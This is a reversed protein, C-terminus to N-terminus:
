QKGEVYKWNTVSYHRCTGDDQLIVVDGIDHPWYRKSIMGGFPNPTAISMIPAGNYDQLWVRRRGTLKAALWMFFNM